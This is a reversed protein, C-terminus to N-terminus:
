KKILRSNKVPTIIRETNKFNFLQIGEVEMEQEGSYVLYAEPDLNKLQRRLKVIGKLFDGNYTSAAKIEVSTFRNAQKYLVDVENGNSDRYFFLNHDLGQNFRKKMLEGIVMNEFLNGRLPDRQMQSVTEIGLLYSALGVDYFYLKPSKILRKGINEHFPELLFIIYSAALISVWSNITPVSVGLDNSLSSASYLQGIRGACLRVFKQFTRLDKINVIQRLDRQIYTEFYNKYATVPELKRDHIGPYFGHQLYEDVSFRKKIKDLESFSFPLLTLIATRGALSQSIANFLDFQHSGTLVFMGNKKNSDVIGQIYSMLEPARQIEDLIAGNGAKKLFERPDAIALERIDPDELTFYQYDPFVTKVLTTKGSQRPGTITIVPYKKAVTILTASIERSVLM